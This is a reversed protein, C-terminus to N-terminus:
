ENLGWRAVGEFRALMDSLLPTITEARHPLEVLSSPEPTAAFDPHDNQTQEGHAEETGNPRNIEMSANM